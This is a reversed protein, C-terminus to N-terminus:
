FYISIQSIDYIKCNDHCQLIVYEWFIYDSKKITICHTKQM